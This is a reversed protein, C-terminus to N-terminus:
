LAAASKQPSPKSSSTVMRTTLHSKSPKKATLEYSMRCSFGKLVQTAWASASTEQGCPNSEKRLDSALQFVGTLVNVIM